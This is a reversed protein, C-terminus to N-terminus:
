DPISRPSIVDRGAWLRFFVLTLQEVSPGPERRYGCVPLAAPQYSCSATAWTGLVGDGAAFARRNGDLLKRPPRALPHDGLGILTKRRCGPLIDAGIDHRPLAQRLAPAAFIRLWTGIDV